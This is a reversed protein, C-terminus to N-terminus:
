LIIAVNFALLALAVSLYYLRTTRAWAHSRTIPGALLAIVIALVLSILPLSLFAFQWWTLDVYPRLFPLSALIYVMNPTLAIIVLFLLSFLSALAALIGSWVLRSSPPPWVAVVDVSTNKRRIRQILARVPWYFLTSLFVLGCIAYFAIQPLGSRIDIKALRINAFTPTRGRFDVADGYPSFYLGPEVETLPYTNTEGPFSYALADNHNSIEATVDEGILM